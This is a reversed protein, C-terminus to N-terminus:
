PLFICNKHVVLYLKTLSFRTMSGDFDTDGRNSQIQDLIKDAYQWCILWHFYQRAFTPLLRECCYRHSRRYVLAITVRLANLLRSLLLCSFTAKYYCGTWIFICTMHSWIMRQNASHGSSGDGERRVTIWYFYREYEGWRMLSATNVWCVDKVIQDLDQGLHLRPM